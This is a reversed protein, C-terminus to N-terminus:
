IRDPTKDDPMAHNPPPVASHIRSGIEADAPSEASNDEPAGMDPQWQHPRSWDRSTATIISM